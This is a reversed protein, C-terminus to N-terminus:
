HDASFKPGYGVISISAYVPTRVGDHDLTEGSAIGIARIEQGDAGVTHGILKVIRWETAKWDHAGAGALRANQLSFSGSGSIRGDPAISLSLTGTGTGGGDGSDKLTATATAGEFTATGQFGFYPTESGFRPSGYERTLSKYFDVGSVWLTVPGAIQAPPFSTEFAFGSLRHTHADAVLRPGKVAKPGDSYNFEVAGVKQTQGGEQFTYEGMTANKRQYPKLAPDIVEYYEITDAKRVLQLGQVPELADITGATRNVCIDSLGLLTMGPQSGAVLTYWVIASGREHACNAIQHYTIDAGTQPPLVRKVSAPRAGASAATAASGAGLAVAELQQFEAMSMGGTVPLGQAQQYSAIATQTQADVVGDVPGTTYGLQTLYTELKLVVPNAPAAAPQPAPAGGCPALMAAVGALPIGIAAGKPAYVEVLQAAKMRAVVQQFLAQANADGARFQGQQFPVPLQAARDFVLTATGDIVEGMIIATIANPVNAATTVCNVSMTTNGAEIGISRIGQGEEVFWQQAHAPAAAVILACFLAQVMRQM